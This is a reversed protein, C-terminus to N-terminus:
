REKTQRASSSLRAGREVTTYSAAALSLSNRNMGLPSLQRRRHLQHERWGQGTQLGVTVIMDISTDDLGFFNQFMLRLPAGDIQLNYFDFENLKTGRNCRSEYLKIYDKAISMPDRVQGGQRALPMGFAQQRRLAMPSTFGGAAQAVQPATMTGGLAQVNTGVGRLFNAAQNPSQGMRLAIAQAAAADQRSGGYQGLQQIRNWENRSYDISRYMSATLADQASIPTSEQVNRGFRSSLISAGQGIM